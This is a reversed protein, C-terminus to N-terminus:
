PQNNILRSGFTIGCDCFAICTLLITIVAFGYIFFIISYIILYSLLICGPFWPCITPRIDSITMNQNHRNIPFNHIIEPKIRLLNLTRLIENSNTNSLTIDRKVRQIILETFSKFTKDDMKSIFEIVKIVSETNNDRTPFRLLNEKGMGLYRSAIINQQQNVARQTRTQFLPSDNMTSKVSQYGVVYSLSGLVLLVVACISVVILPKKDM